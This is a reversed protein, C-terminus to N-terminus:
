HYYMREELYGANCVRWYWRHVDGVETAIINVEQGFGGVVINSKLFDPGAPSLTKFTFETVRLGECIQACNKVALDEFKTEGIVMITLLRRGEKTCITVKVEHACPTSLIDGNDTYSMQLIEAPTNSQHHDDQPQNMMSFPHSLVLSRTLNVMTFVASDRSHLISCSRRSCQALMQIPLAASVVQFQKRTQIFGRNSVYWTWDGQLNVQVVQLDLVCHFDSVTQDLDVTSFVTDGSPTWSKYQLVFETMAEAAFIETANFLVLQKFTAHPVVRKILIKQEASNYFTLRISRPLSIWHDDVPAYIVDGRLSLTLRGVRSNQPVSLAM